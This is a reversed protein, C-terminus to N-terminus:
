VLKNELGRVLLEAVAEVVLINRRIRAREALSLAKLGCVQYVALKDLEHAGRAALVRVPEQEDRAVIGVYRVGAVVPEHHGLVRDLVLQENRHM